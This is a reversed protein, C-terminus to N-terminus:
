SEEYLKRVLKGKGEFRPLTGSPVIEVDARFVLKERLTGEVAKKLEILDGAAAGQEVKVRLPPEIRPGPRELLIQVEGSTRPRFGAVVDKIASPFVNVGLVILLDDTRGICRTRFGTRGCACPKTWVTVLDRTRFRVLPNAERDLHTYVLEGTLGDEIDLPAGTEPEILEPLIYDPGGFHMGQQAECEGWTSAVIESSGYGEFSKAGWTEKLQRKFSENSYGPEGGGVFRKIGLERPDIGHKNTVYETFYTAFSPTCHLTSARLDRICALARDSAGPGVPVFTAGTKEIGQQLPLGGVFFALANAHIVIDGPRLGHTYMTRAAMEVWADRDRKTLGIYTPRGTTGSSSHIRVIKDMRAAVFDGLPPVHEQSQRLEDKVTFPALRRLDDITQIHEPRLGAEAFKRRYFPSNGYVYGIQRRLKNTQMEMREEPAITEIRPNFYARHKM